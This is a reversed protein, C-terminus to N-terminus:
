YRRLCLLVFAPVPGPWRVAEIEGGGFPSETALRDLRAEGNAPLWLWHAPDYIRAEGGPKLIRHIEALGLAPDPWHHLSLTSMVGEFSGDAYSLAGVDGVEFRVQESPLGAETARRKALEVMGPSIDVGTVDLGPASRALRVALRGPGSGVELVAGGPCAAAMEDAVRSYFGGLLSAWMADYMGATPLDFARVNAYARKVAAHVPNRYLLAAGLAAVLFLWHRRSMPVKEGRNGLGSRM